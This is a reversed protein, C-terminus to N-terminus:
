YEKKAYFRSELLALSESDYVIDAGMAIYKNNGNQTKVSMPMVGIPKNSTTVITLQMDGKKELSLAFASTCLGASINIDTDYNKKVNSPVQTIELYQGKYSYTDEQNESLACDLVRVFNRTSAKSLLLSNFYEDKGLLYTSYGECKKLIEIAGEKDEISSVGNSIILLRKPQKLLDIDGKYFLVFPPKYSQKLAEPYENDLITIFNDHNLSCYHEIEEESMKVKDKIDQYCKNWDGKNKIVLALLTKKASYRM